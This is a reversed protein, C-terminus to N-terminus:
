EGARTQHNTPTATKVGSAELLQELMKSSTGTGEQEGEVRPPVEMGPPPRFIVYAKKWDDARWLYRHTIPDLGHHSHPLTQTPSLLM